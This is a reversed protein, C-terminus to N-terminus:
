FDFVLPIHDSVGFVRAYNDIDTFLDVEDDFFMGNPNYGVPSNLSAPDNIESAYPLAGPPMGPPTAVANYPAGTVLNAITANAVAGNRVFANDISDYRGYQDVGSMYGFAPYGNTWDPTANRVETIHTILYGQAPYAAPLAAGGVTNIVRTYAAAFPAYAVAVAAPVFLSVNFDGAVVITENAGINQVEHLNGITQTALTSPAAAPGAVGGDQGPAAHCAIISYNHGAASDYFTTRFPSRTNLGGFNIPAPPPMMGGGGGGGGVVYRWQGALRREIQGANYLNNGAPVARNSVPTSFAGSYRAPYIGAAIGPAAPGAGGAWRWPGTFFFTPTRRYYVAVGEGANGGGSIVPPVLAWQPDDNQRLYRLLRMSGDDRLLTGGGTNGGPRVEVIVIIDPANATIANFLVDLYNQATNEGWDEDGDRTRKRNRLFFKDESFVQVNWYIM